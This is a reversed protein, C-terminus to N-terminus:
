IAWRIRIGLASFNDGFTTTDQTGYKKLLVKPSANRSRPTGDLNLPIPSASPRQCWGGDPYHIPIVGRVRRGAPTSLARAAVPPEIVKGDSHKLSLSEQEVGAVNLGDNIINFGTVPIQLLWDANGRKISFEYTAMWGRYIREGWSEVHPNLSYGRFMCQHKAVLVGLISFEDSNIAGVDESNTGFNPEYQQISINVIPQLESVGDYMDHVPNVAPEFKGEDDEPWWERAPVEILSTSVTIKPPRVDPAQGKPDEGGSGGPSTRYTATVVRVLRSEGESAEGISVCPLSGNSPHMDGIRVGITQQIDYAEQPSDLIVRWRRVSTDAVQGNDSSRENSPRPLESVMSPM